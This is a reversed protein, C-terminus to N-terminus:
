FNIHNTYKFYITTIIIQIIILIIKKDYKNLNTITLSISQRNDDGNPSGNDGFSVNGQQLTSNNPNTIPSSTNYHYSM